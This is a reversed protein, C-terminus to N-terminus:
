FIMDLGLYSVMTLVSAWVLVGISLWLLLPRLSMGIARGIIAAIISGCIAPSLLGLGIVGFKAVLRQARTSASAKARELLAAFPGFRLREGLIAGALAGVIAGSSAACAILVVPLHLAFGLPIASWLTMTSVAFVVMCGTGVNM